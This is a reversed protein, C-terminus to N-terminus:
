EPIFELHTSEIYPNELEKGSFMYGKCEYVMKEGCRPFVSSTQEILDDLQVDTITSYNRTSLQYESLRREITQKSCGFMIAIDEVRFGNDVLFSLKEEEIVLAPRGM